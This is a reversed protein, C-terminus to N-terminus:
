APLDLKLTGSEITTCHCAVLREGAFVALARYPRVVMVTVWFTVSALSLASFGTSDCRSQDASRKTAPALNSSAVKPNHARRCRQVWSEEDGIGREGVLWKRCSKGQYEAV